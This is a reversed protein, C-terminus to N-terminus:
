LAASLAQTLEKVLREPALPKSLFRANPPLDDPAPKTIGSSILL